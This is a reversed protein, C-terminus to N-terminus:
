RTIVVFKAESKGSGDNYSYIVYYTGDPCIVGQQNHGDFNNLYHGSSAWVEMGWRDFIMISANPYKENCPIVYFDNIGDGNPSFANPIFCPGTVTVCIDATDCFKYHGTEACVQYTFQEIGEYGKDPTYTITKDPNVVALGNVPNVSVTVVTDAAVPIIDNALVDLVLSSNANMTDRDCSEPVAKITSDIVTFIVTATDCGNANCVVVCFTDNGVYNHAPTYTFCSDGVNAIATGNQPNCLSTIHWPTTSVVLGSLCVTDPTNELTTDIIIPVHPPPCSGIFVIFSATDCYPQPANDCVYYSFRATGSTGDAHYTIVSDTYTVFGVNGPTVPGVGTITLVIGSQEQIGTLVSKNITDTGCIYETDNALKFPRPIIYIVVQATDCLTPYSIDCIQYCFTDSSVALPGPTYTVDGNPDISATGFAPECYILKTTFADGYNDYDNGLVNVVVPVGYNTSDFDNVAVPPGHVFPTTTTDVFIYITATSCLPSPDCIQYIISDEGAVPSTYTIMYNGTTAETFYAGPLSPGQVIQPRPPPGAPYFDNGLENITTPINTHTVAGDDNAQISDNSVVPCSVVSITIYNTACLPDSNCVTYPIVYVGPLTAAFVLAGNGTIAVTAVGPGTVTGYSYHMPLGRPDVTAGAVDIGLSQTTCTSGDIKFALPPLNTNKIYIVVTATDCLTPYLYDCTRYTFTDTTTNNYAPTYTVTGNSDVTATGDHPPTVIGGNVISDGNNSYDNSLVPVIVPTQYNTSDYDDVAVPPYNYVVNPTTDVYIYITATSCLPAPDCIQYLISDLGPTPSNYTITGNANITDTAGPLYPGSIISVTLSDPNPYFDNGLENIYTPTNVTTVVGDPNAKISDKAV